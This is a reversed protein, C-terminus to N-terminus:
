LRAAQRGGRSREAASPAAGAVPAAVPAGRSTPRHTPPRLRTRATLGTLGTIVATYLAPQPVAQHAIVEHRHRVYRWAVMTPPAPSMQQWVYTGGSWAGLPVLGDETSRTPGIVSLARSRHAQRRSQTPRRRGRMPMCILVTLAARASVFSRVETMMRLCRRTVVAPKADALSHRREAHWGTV